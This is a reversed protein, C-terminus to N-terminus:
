GAYAAIASGAYGIVQEFAKAAVVDVVVQKGKEFWAKARAGVGKEGANKDAEAAAALEAADYQKLGLKEFADVLSALDGPQVGNIIKQEVSQNGFAMSQVNGGNITTNFIQSVKDEKVKEIKGHAPLQDAEPYEAQIELTFALIKTKVHDILGAMTAMSVEMWAGTCHSGPTLKGAYNIALELPWDVKISGKGASERVLNAVVSISAKYELNRFHPQLKEPLVGVPIQMEGTLRGIFNGKNLPHLKRYDPVQANEPYSELEHKVWASLPGHKLKNALVMCLRLM